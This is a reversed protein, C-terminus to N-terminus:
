VGGEGGGEIEAARGRGEAGGEGEGEEGGGLGGGLEVRLKSVEHVEFMMRMEVGRRLDVQKKVEKEQRVRRRWEGYHKLRRDRIKLRKNLPSKPSPGPDVYGLRAEQQRTYTLHSLHGARKQDGFARWESLSHHQRPTYAPNYRHTTPKPQVPVPGSALKAKPKSAKSRKAKPAPAEDEGTSRKRKTAKVATTNTPARVIKKAKPPPKSNAAAKKKTIGVPKSSSSVAPVQNRESRRPKTASTARTYAM